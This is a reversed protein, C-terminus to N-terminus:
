ATLIHGYVATYLRIVPRAMKTSDLRADLGGRRILSHSGRVSAHNKQQGAGWPEESAGGAGNLWCVALLQLLRPQLEAPTRGAAQVRTSLARVARHPPRVTTPNPIHSDKKTKGLETNGQGEQIGGGRGLWAQWSSFCGRRRLTKVFVVAQVGVKEVGTSPFTPLVHSTTPQIPSYRKEGKQTSAGAGCTM